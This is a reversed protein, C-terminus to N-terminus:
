MSIPSGLAAHPANKSGQLMDPRVRVILTTITGVIFGEIVAIPLHAIFVIKAMFEIGEIGCLVLILANGLCTLIVALFGCIAGIMGIRRCRDPTFPSAWIRFLMGIAIAPVSIICTNVGLTLYGGHMLMVVQWFLGISIALPSRWGLIVGLLGTLLLHVSTVGMRVHILSSVFFAASLLGIKSVEEPNLRWSALALLIAMLVFGAVIVPTPLLGDSIHVAFLM